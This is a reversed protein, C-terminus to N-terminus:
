NELDRPGRPRSVVAATPIFSRLPGPKGSPEGEGAYHLITLSHGCRDEKM